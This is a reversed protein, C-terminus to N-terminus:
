PKLFVPGLDCFAVVIRRPSWLGFLRISVESHCADDSYQVYSIKSVVVGHGFGRSRQMPFIKKHSCRLSPCSAVMICLQRERSSLNRTPLPPKSKVFPDFPMSEKSLCKSCIEKPCHIVNESCPCSFPQCGWKWGM